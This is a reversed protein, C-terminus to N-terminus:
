RSQKLFYNLFTKKPYLYCLSFFSMILGTLFMCSLFIWSSSKYNLCNSLGAILLVTVLTVIGAAHVLAIIQLKNKAYLITSSGYVLFYPVGMWGLIQFAPIAGAWQGGFIIPVLIPATFYWFFGNLISGFLVLFATKFFFQIKEQDTKKISLARITANTMLSNLLIHSVPGYNMARNYYALQTEGAFNGLLIKDVRSYWNSAVSGLWLWFGTRFQQVFENWDFKLAAIRRDSLLIYLTAQPVFGALGGLALGYIGWGHWVLSIAVLAHTSLDAIQVLFNPKFFGRGELDCKLTNVWDALVMPIGVIAGVKAAELNGMCISVIVFGTLLFLKLLAVMLAMGLVKSFLIPTKGADSILLQATTFSAPIMLFMLTANVAVFKGFVLPELLRALIIGLLM